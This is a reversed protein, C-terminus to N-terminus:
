IGKYIKKFEFFSKLKKDKESVIPKKTPWKVKLTKDNWIIGDEYKPHYYNSLKYYIINL